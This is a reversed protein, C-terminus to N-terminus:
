RGARYASPYTQLLGPEAMLAEIEEISLALDISVIEARDEHIIILDENRIYLREEPVRLAPEITFVMGARLPGDITGVDHTAMGVFHGLSGYDGRTSRAYGEVFAEAAARHHEEVFTWGSLADRMDAVAEAKVQNPTVGPRIHELIARYAREYFGYLARHADTFRGDVPIMRTVDSRYYGVDPAYDMLVMEGAQMTRARRRYHPYWANPGSAILPAYADGQAGERYYILKAAADIEREGVGPEVSRMAEEIALVSLRTAKRILDLERPSKIMRMADVIPNLDAVEAGPLRERLLGIFQAERSPRGDWPDALRDNIRRVGADRSEALGEAPKFPTYVAPLRDRRLMGHLATALEELPAVADIGSLERVLDPSDASLVRGESAERSEDRHPLFVTARRSAGDLLLYAHPAEIGSLYFFDNSQRFVKSGRPTGEGALVAVAGPGIADYVRDRREAFEGPPFDLTFLPADQAAAPLVVLLLALPLFRM